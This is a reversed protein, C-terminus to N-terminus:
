EENLYFKGDYFSKYALEKNAALINENLIAFNYPSNSVAGLVTHTALAGALLALMM